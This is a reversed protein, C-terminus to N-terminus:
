TLAGGGKISVGKLPLPPLIRWACPATIGEATFTPFPIQKYKLNLQPPPNQLLVGVSIPVGTYHGELVNRQEYKGLNLPKEIGQYVGHM